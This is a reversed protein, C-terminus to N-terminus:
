IHIYIYIYIYINIRIYVYIYVYIYIHIYIGQLQSMLLQFESMLGDLDSISKKQNRDSDTLNEKNEKERKDNILMPYTLDGSDNSHKVSRDVIENDSHDMENKDNKENKQSFNQSSNIEPTPTVKVEYRIESIIEGGHFSPGFLNLVSDTLKLGLSSLSIGQVKYCASKIDTVSKLTSLTSKTQKYHSEGNKLFVLFSTRSNGHLLPALICTLKSDRASTVKMKYSLSNLYSSTTKFSSRNEQPTLAENERLITTRPDHSAFASRNHPTETTPMHKLQSKSLSEMEFLVKCLTQLQLAGDRKTIRNEEPLNNFAIDDITTTGILDVIHLYSLSGCGIRDNDAKHILIRLFFHAKDRNLGPTQLGAGFARERATLLVQLAIDYTPCEV